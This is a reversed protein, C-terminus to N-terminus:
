DHACTSEKTYSIHSNMELELEQNDGEKNACCGVRRPALVCYLLFTSASNISLFIESIFGCIIIWVPFGGLATDACLVIEDVVTMEHINLALRLSHSFTFITVLIIFITVQRKDHSPVSNNKVFIVVKCSLISIVLFPVFGLVIFTAWHIYLTIYTASARLETVDFFVEDYDTNLTTEFFKPINFCLSVLLAPLFYVLTHPPRRAPHYTLLFMHISLATTLYISLTMTISSLPHIMTPYVMVIESWMINKALYSLMMNVLFLLHSVSHLLLIQNFTNSLHINKFLFLCSIISFIGFVCFFIQAWGALNGVLGLDVSSDAINPCDINMLSFNDSGNNVLINGTGIIELLDNDMTQDTDSGEEMDRSSLTSSLSCTFVIIVRPSVASFLWALKQLCVECIYVIHPM